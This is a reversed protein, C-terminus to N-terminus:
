KAVATVIPRPRLRATNRGAEREAEVDMVRFPRAREVNRHNDHRRPHNQGPQRPNQGPHNHALDVIPPEGNHHCRDDGGEDDTAIVQHDIRDAGVHAM